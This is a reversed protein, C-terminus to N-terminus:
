RRAAGFMRSQAMRDFGSQEDRLSRGTYELYVEDLSPKAMSLKIVHYGKSSLATILKPTLTEASKTKIRYEKGVIAVNKVGMINKLATLLKADDNSVELQIVDGGIATKLTNPSGIKIIHGHDIIAIRDCLSDAEEMYHTTLFLTMGYKEKLKKIYAWIATRTQVDLGLTPEDLFLIPPYNVLSTALELRRRMGGSYTSVKRDAVTGLEVLDLLEKIRGTSTKRPIGYLDAMLLINDYGTLDEDSTYEQPAVGISARVEAQETKISYGCVTANGGTPDIITTLMKITTTKGAGNPGLFGFIEGKNVYFSVRDVAKVTGNYTKSLNDVEIIRESKTM